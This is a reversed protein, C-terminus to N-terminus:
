SDDQVERDDVHVELFSPLFFEFIMCFAAVVVAAAILGGLALCVAAVLACTTIPSTM